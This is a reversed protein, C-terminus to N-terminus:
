NAVRIWTDPILDKPDWDGDTFWTTPAVVIKDSRDGNLWVAWWAFSSNPIIYHKCQSMLQLYNSFKNGKHEHGVFTVPYDLKFNELCWQPDDSFIFFHPDAVKSAVIDIGPNFYKMDCVGHFNNNLFDARRVNICVSNKEKIMKHLEQSAAIVPERFRFDNRIEQEISQFYKPTQWYGDLYCHRPLEFVQPAFHFHPEYYYKWPRVINQLLYLATQLKNEPLKKFKLTESKSAVPAELSFIDLDYDRYVFNERPSRDLLFELDMKFDTALHRALAKATAYQFMQNGMGGQLKVIVM